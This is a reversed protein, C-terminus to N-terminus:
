AADAYAWKYGGALKKNGSLVDSIRKPSIGLELAGDTISAHMKIIQGDATLQYVKRRAGRKKYTSGPFNISSLPTTELAWVFNGATRGGGRIVKGICQSKIGTQQEAIVMNDFTAVKVGDLTYQCVRKPVTSDEDPFWETMWENARCIRALVPYEDAFETRTDFQKAYEHIEDKTMNVWHGSPLKKYKLWPYEPQWKNDRIKNYVGPHYKIIDSWWEYQSCVTTIYTKTLKGSGLGGMGGGPVSNLMTWGLANYLAIMKCEMAGGNQIAIHSCLIKPEPVSIGLSKAYRFVPSKESTSHSQKRSTLSVTRGVYAVGTESFEYVYVNDQVVGNDLITDKKLFSIIWKKHHRRITEYASTETKRFETFGKDMYQKALALLERDTYPLHKSRTLWTFDRIIKHRCCWEYLDPEKKKFEDYLDYQKAVSYAYEVTYKSCRQGAQRFSEEKSQFGLKDMWGRDNAVNYMNEDYNKLDTRKTLGKAQLMASVRMCADLTVSSQRVVIDPFLEDMLDHEKAYDWAARDGEHWETRTNFHKASERCVTENMIRPGMDPYFEKLWGKQRSKNCVAQDARELTKANPYQSAIEKCLEHTLVRRAM